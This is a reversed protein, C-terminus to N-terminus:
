NIATGDNFILSKNDEYITSNYIPQIPNIYIPQIPQDNPQDYIPQYNPLEIVNKEKKIRKSFSNLYSQNFYTGRVFDISEFNITPVKFKCELLCKCAVNHIYTEYSNAMMNKPIKNYNCYDQISYSHRKVIKDVCYFIDHISYTLINLINPTYIVKEDKIEKEGFIKEENFKELILIQYKEFPVGREWENIKLTYNEGYTFTAEVTYNDHIVYHVLIKTNKITTYFKDFKM